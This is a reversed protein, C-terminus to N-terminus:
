NHMPQPGDKLQKALALHVGALIGVPILMAVALLRWGLHDLGGTAGIAGGTLTPRFPIALLFLYLAVTGVAVGAAGMAALKSFKEM